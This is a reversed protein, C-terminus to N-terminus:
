SILLSLIVTSELSKLQATSNLFFNDAPVVPLVTIWDMAM